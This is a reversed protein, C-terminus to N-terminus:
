AEFLKINDIGYNSDQGFKSDTAYIQKFWKGLEPNPNRVTIHSVALFLNGINRNQLLKALGIFTGGYVCLDDIILIDKGEFDLRDVQQTLASKNTEPNWKRSKSAAYVEGEWQIDDTLKMLPKFGGADTSMLILNESAETEFKCYYDEYHDIVTEVFNYNDIIVVNDILAEVVEPNHPHLIQVEKFKLDNIFKCVMKLNPSENDAFRRDAQADLLCPIFVSVEVGKHDYINKIQALQWLDDYSNIRHTIQSYLTGEIKTYFSGDPYLKKEIM